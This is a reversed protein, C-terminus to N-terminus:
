NDGGFSCFAGASGGKSGYTDSNYTNIALDFGCRKSVWQRWSLSLTESAIPERSFSQRLLRFNQSAQKGQDYRLSWQAKGDEGLNLALWSTNSRSDDGDNKFPSVGIEANFHDTFLWNASAIAYNTKIDDASEIKGLGFVLTLKKSQGAVYRSSIEYAASEFGPGDGDGLKGSLSWSENFTHTLGIEAYHGNGKFREANQFNLNLSTMEGVGFNGALYEGQWDGINRDLNSFEYGLSVMNEAKSNQSYFAIAMLCFAFRSLKM